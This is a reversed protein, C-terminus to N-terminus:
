AVASIPSSGWRVSRSWPTWWGRRGTEFFGFLRGQQTNDGPQGIEAARALEAHRLDRWVPGLDAPHELM